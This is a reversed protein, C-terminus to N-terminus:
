GQGGAIRWTATLRWGFSRQVRAPRGTVREVLARLEAVTYGRLISVVGDNRSVPHFGLLFSVSWLGVVALWSRRLEHVVVAVRAVRECERLLADSAEGEFHHLVQSLTVIDVSRDDFPLDMADAALAVTCRASASAALSPDRELGVTLLPVGLRAALRSVAQPIDGLGTGIDLLTMPLTSRVGNAIRRHGLLPRVERLVARRGGFLRNALAVDRLSRAALAPDSTPDDLIEIGRRRTPTLTGILTGILM